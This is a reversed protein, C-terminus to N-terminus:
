QELEEAFTRMSEACNEAYQSFNDALTRLESPDYATHSSANTIRYAQEYDNILLAMDTDEERLAERLMKLLLRIKAGHEDKVFTLPSRQTHVKSLAALDLTVAALAERETPRDPSFILKDIHSM